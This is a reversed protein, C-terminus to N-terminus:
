CAVGLAALTHHVALVLHIRCSNCEIYLTCMLSIVVVVLYPM